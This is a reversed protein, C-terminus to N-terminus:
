ALYLMGLAMVGMALNEILTVKTMPLKLATGLCACQITHKAQLASIVGISGIAMLFATISNILSFNWNLAYSIGLGLEIFPYALAYARSRKAILDYTAYADAFGTLNLFKFLSFLLFFGAM